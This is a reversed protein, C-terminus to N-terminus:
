STLNCLYFLSSSSFSRLRFYQRHVYSRYFIQDALFLFVLLCHHLTSVVYFAKRPLSVISDLSFALFQLRPCSSRGHQTEGARHLVSHFLWSASQDDMYKSFASPSSRLYFEYWSTQWNALTVRLVGSLPCYSFDLIDHRQRSLSVASLCLSDRLFVM